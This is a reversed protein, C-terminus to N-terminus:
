RSFREPLHPAAGSLKIKYRYFGGFFDEEKLFEHGDKSIWFTQTYHGRPSDGETFLKWCDVTQRGNLQLVESGTVKYTVYKPPELGADYFHIVFTKGAKLPLMEFTEMDLNWNYSPSDFALKFGAAKNNATTDGTIERASWRYAKQEKGRTEAHYLPSFDAARNISYSELYRTSDESYWHQTIRFVPEQQWSSKEIERTWLSLGLWNSHAPAQFYVLYQKVGPQLFGTNLRLHQPSITDTQASLTQM